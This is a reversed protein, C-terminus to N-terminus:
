GPRVITVPASGAENGTTLRVYLKYSVARGPHAFGTTTHYILPTGPLFTAVTSEDEGSYDPGPTSRLQYTALDADTSATWTLEARTAPIDWTGTLTVPDPTHGPLPSLRPLTLIEVSDGAHLAEIKMRYKKMLELARSQLENRKMRTELTAFEAAGRATFAADVQTRLATFQALTLGGRLLMPATFLPTAPLADVRTWINLVDDMALIIADRGATRSPVPPLQNFLRHDPFDARIRRNFEAIRDGADQRIQLLVVRSNELDNLKGQLSAKEADLAARLATFHGLAVPLGNEPLILDPDSSEWHGIFRDMVPIFDSSSVIPM